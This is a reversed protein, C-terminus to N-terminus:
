PAIAVTDVSRVTYPQQADPDIVVVARRAMEQDARVAVRAEIVVSVADEGPAGPDSGATSPIATEVGGPAAMSAFAARLVRDHTRRSPPATQTFSLHPALRDLLAPTMGPIGAVDDLTEFPRGLPSCGPKMPPPSFAARNAQQILAPPMRWIMIMHSLTAAEAQPLGLVNLVAAMLQPPALNPNLADAELTLRLRAKLDPQNIQRWRGDAGWHRGDDVLLHFIGTQIAADAQAQAEDLTTIDANLRASSHGLAIVATVILSLLVLTWLVLLLAFGQDRAPRTRNMQCALM